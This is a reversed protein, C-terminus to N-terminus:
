TRFSSATRASACALIPAAPSCCRTPSQARADLLSGALQPALHAPTGYRIQGACVTIAAARCMRDRSKMARSQPLRRCPREVIARYGTCRCLNGALAEHIRRPRRDARRGAPLCLMAMAFGPTCFGCQTGDTDILAQRCRICRRRQSALGEVTIVSAGDLQPLLMLCSNVPKIICRATARARSRRHHLRRLRRRRLRGQHRDPARPGRLWDLVTTTPSIGREARLAGNLLFSVPM